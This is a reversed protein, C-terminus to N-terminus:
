PTTPKERNNLNLKCIGGKSLGKWPLRKETVRECATIAEHWKVKDSM